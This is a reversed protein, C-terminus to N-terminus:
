AIFILFFTNLRYIFVLPQCTDSQTMTQKCIQSTRYEGQQSFSRHHLRHPVDSLTNQEKLSKNILIIIVFITVNQDITMLITSFYITFLETVHQGRLFVTFGSTFNRAHSRALRHSLSSKQIGRPIVQVLRTYQKVLVANPEPCLDCWQILCM